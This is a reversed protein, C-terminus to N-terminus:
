LLSNELADLNLISIKRGAVSIWGAASMKSLERSLSPRTINMHEALILKSFPLTVIDQSDQNKMEKLLFHAIKQRTTELSLLEIKQNLLIIRNSFLELFHAMIDPDRSFLLLLDGRSIFLIECNERAIITAHHVNPSSFIAAEAILDSQTFRAITLTKGSPFIKQAEVSGSIVIGLRDAPEADSLIVAGKPYSSNIINIGQLLHLIEEPNKHNFFPLDHLLSLYKKL